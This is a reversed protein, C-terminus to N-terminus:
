NRYIFCKVCELEFDLVRQLIIEDHFKEVRVVYELKYTNFLSGSGYGWGGPVQAAFTSMKKTSILFTVKVVYKCLSSKGYLLFLLSRKLQNSSNSIMDFEKKLYSIKSGKM